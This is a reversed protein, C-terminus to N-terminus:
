TNPCVFGTFAELQKCAFYISDAKNKNKPDTDNVNINTLINGIRSDTSNAQNVRMILQFRNAPTLSMFASFFKAVSM